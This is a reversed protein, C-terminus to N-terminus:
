NEQLLKGYTVTPIRLARKRMEGFRWIPAELSKCGQQIAVAYIEKVDDVYLYLIFPPSVKTKVPSQGSFNFEGEKNVTFNCGRYRIRAFIIEGQPNKLEFIPVMGFVEQYFQIAQGVDPVVLMVTLWNLGPWPHPRTEVNDFWNM